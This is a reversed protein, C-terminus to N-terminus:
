LMQERKAQRSRAEVLSWIRATLVTIAFAGIVRLLLLYLVNIGLPVFLLTDEVVAHCAVLFIATLYLDKRSLNDEKAAQIIVGAGYAIGFTLGAIFTVGTNESVGLLRTFPTLKRALYPLVKLDKLLQIGLMLPIVIIALQVIALCATKVGLLFISFWGDVAQQQPVMGYQAMEGGGNWLLHILLGSVVALGLRVTIFIWSKVGIKSAIATEIPLSHSFSLMIALIFVQKVQLAMTFMAGIAAYLNLLNGLVLVVAADGPLGFMGMMPEFMRVIWSLLPTHQLITVILTIPFIVKGLKYTTAVGTSVGQRWTERTVM